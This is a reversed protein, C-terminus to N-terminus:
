KLKASIEKLLKIIEENQQEMHKQRNEQFYQFKQIKDLIENAKQTNNAVMGNGSMLIGQPTIISKLAKNLDEEM